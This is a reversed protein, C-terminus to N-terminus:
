DYGIYRLYGCVVSLRFRCIPVISLPGAWLGNARQSELLWTYHCGYASTAANNGTIPVSPLLCCLSNVAMYMYRSVYMYMYTYVYVYMYVCIVAMYLTPGLM